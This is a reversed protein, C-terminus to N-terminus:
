KISFFVFAIMASFIHILSLMIVCVSIRTNKSNKANFYNLIFDGNKNTLWSNLDILGELYGFVFTATLLFGRIDFSKKLSFAIFIVFWVKFLIRFIIKVIDLIREPVILSILIYFALVSTFITHIEWLILSLVEHSNFIIQWFVLALLWSLIAYIILKKPM